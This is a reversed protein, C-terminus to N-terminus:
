VVSYLFQMKLWFMTLILLKPYSFYIYIIYIAFFVEKVTTQGDITVFIKYLLTEFYDGQVRNMVFGDLTPVLNTQIFIIM